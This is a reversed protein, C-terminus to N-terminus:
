YNLRFACYIVSIYGSQGLDVMNKKWEIHLIQGNASMFTHSTEM